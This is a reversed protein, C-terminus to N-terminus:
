RAPCSRYELGIYLSGTVHSRGRLGPNELILVRGSPRRRRSGEALNMLLPRLDDAQWLVPVAEPQPEQPIIASLVEWLPAAGKAELRGYFEQREPTLDPKTFFATSAGDM